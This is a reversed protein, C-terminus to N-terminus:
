AKYNEINLLAKQYADSADLENSFLGLHKKRGSVDIRAHWKKSKKSWSVGIFQSSFKDSNKRFCTSLNERCTVIHLNSIHNDSRDGNIHDIVSKHGNPRYGYFGMVVLQHIKITRHIIGKYLVIKLYGYHDTAPKMIRESIHRQGYKGLVFREISKVRGFNSASYHGEYEPIDKWVETEM